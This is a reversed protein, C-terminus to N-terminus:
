ANPNSSRNLSYRAIDDRKQWGRKRWYELAAENTVFVDLHTKLIGIKELADLCRSVLEDAIGRGRFEPAVVAHQLYGRRGDHGCLACGIMRDGDWAAFSLNPNRELYRAIAERSDADRVVMEPTAKLLALFADYDQAAFEKFQM